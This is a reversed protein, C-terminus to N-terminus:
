FPLLWHLLWNKDILLLQGRCDLMFVLLLTHTRTILNGRESALQGLEEELVLLLEVRDFSVVHNVSLLRYLLAFM